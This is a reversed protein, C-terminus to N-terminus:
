AGFARGPTQQILALCPPTTFTYKRLAAMGGEYFRVGRQSPENVGGGGGGWVCVCAYTHCMTVFYCVLLALMVVLRIYEVSQETVERQWGRPVLVYGSM